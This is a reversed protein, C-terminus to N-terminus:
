KFLEKREVSSLAHAAQRTLERMQEVVQRQYLTLEEWDRSRTALEMPIGELTLHYKATVPYAMSETFACVSLLDALYDAKQPEKEFYSCLWVYLEPHFNAMVGSYGAAGSRLSLLLTQANANFLRIETGALQRLRQELLLPDCCTDKIFRFRGSSLCWDLIEPTLLRKYPAPCEYIGFSADSPLLSLLKEANQIWVRDGEQMPDLRNSIWVVASVGTEWIATLEEAQERISGAVHGSAVVCPPNPQRGAAQVVRRALAVREELSLYFLESSQCVAFIGQCGRQCYWEVLRDVATWDLRNDRTFPTIMTPYVGGPITRM